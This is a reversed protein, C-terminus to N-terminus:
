FGLKLNLGFTRSSPFLGGDIGQTNGSGNVTMEPDFGEKDLGFTLLNRGYLSIRVTKLPGIINTPLTYGITLERLKIYDADFVSQASPFGFGHYHRASWGIGSVYTENPATNTVTYTGDENFTVDGTVADLRIGGGESVPDRIENGKDNVGATEEMM